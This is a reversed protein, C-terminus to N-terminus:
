QAPYSWRPATWDLGAARAVQEVLERYSPNAARKWLDTLGDCDGVAALSKAQHYAAVETAVHKPSNRNYRLQGFGMRTDTVAVGAVRCLDHRAGEVDEAYGREGTDPSFRSEWGIMDSDQQTIVFRKTANM